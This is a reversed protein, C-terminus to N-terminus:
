PITSNVYLNIKGELESLIDATFYQEGRPQQLLFDRSVTGKVGTRLRGVMHSHGTDM